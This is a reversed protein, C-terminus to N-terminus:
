FKKQLDYLERCRKFVEWGNKIDIETLIHHQFGGTDKSLQLIHGEKIREQEQEEYAMMYAVTQIRHEAYVAKSTKIDLLWLSGNKKAIMDVTGGYRYTESVVGYEIKEYELKCQKEWELFALFGTEAKDIQAQTFDKLDPEIQKIHCEIHYHTCTGSDAAEDRIKDPDKGALAERRAWAILVNKNWALQGNLVTTVGPVIEGKPWDKTPKLRYRKHAKTKSMTRKREKPQITTM